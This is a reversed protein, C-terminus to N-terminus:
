SRGWSDRKQKEELSQLFKEPDALLDKKEEGYLSDIIMKRNMLALVKRLLSNRNYIISKPLIPMLAYKAAYLCQRIIKDPLSPDQKSPSGYRFGGELHFLLGEYIAAGGRKELRKLPYWDLGAEDARYIYGMGSDWSYVNYKNRFQQMGESEQEADDIRFVPRYQLYFERTFFLGASPMRPSGHESPAALVCQASLRGAITETWDDAVPFSDVHLTVLHTAGEVVAQAAMLELYYALEASGRQDTEPISCIKVGPHGTLKAKFEPQLRNIAAYITYERTHRGIMELQLDILGSTDPTVLYVTLIALKM